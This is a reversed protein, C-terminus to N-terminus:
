VIIDRFFVRTPSHAAKLVFSKGAEVSAPTLFQLAENWCRSSEVAGCTATMAPYTCLDAPADEETPRNLTLTFWFVVANATGSSTADVVVDSERSYDAMSAPDDLPADFDFGFVEFPASLPTFKVRDARVSTYKKVEPPRLTDYASWRSAGGGVPTSSAPMVIPEPQPPMSVVMAYVKAAAPVVLAGPAALERRAHAVTPIVGGGLLGDDLVESLVVTPRAGDAFGLTEPTLDLSSGHVVRIKEAFGNSALVARACEAMDGVREVTIVEEAGARAAMMALLGSGGGIDVVKHSGSAMCKQIAADYARNRREDNIMPFHWREVSASVGKALPSEGAPTTTTTPKPPPPPADAEANVFTFHGTSPDYKGRLRVTSGRTVRAPTALFSVMQRRSRRGEGGSLVCGVMQCDTWLAVATLEGDEIVELDLALCELNMGDLRAEGDEGMVLPAQLSVRALEAERTVTAHKVDSLRVLDVPAEGRFVNFESLDFGSVTGLPARVLDTQAPITVGLARVSVASPLVTTDPAIVNERAEIADEFAKGVSAIDEVGPVLLVRAFGGPAEPRAKPNPRYVGASAQLVRTVGDLACEKVCARLASAIPRRPELVHVFRPKSPMVDRVIASAFIPVSPLESPNSIVYVAGETSACASAISDSWAREREDDHLTAFHWSTPRILVDYLMYQLLMGRLGRKPKPKVIEDDSSDDGPADAATM